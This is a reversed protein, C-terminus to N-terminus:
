NRTPAEPPARGSEALALNNRALPFDPQLRLAERHEAIAEQRRGQLYLVYGLNTHALPSRPDLRLSERFEAAAADLRGAQSYLVGRNLRAALDNPFLALARDLERAAEADRKRQMFTMGLNRHEGALVTRLRNTAPDAPDRAYARAEALLQRSEDDEPFDSVMRQLEVVAASNQGDVLLASVFRKRVELWDPQRAVAAGYLRIAERVDGQLYRIRALNNLAVDNEPERRVVESFRVGAEDYRKLLYLSHGINIIVAPDNPRLRLAEQLHPLADSPRGVTNYYNGLNNQAVDNDRTVRIAHLLLTESDKWVRVQFAATVALAGASAIAGARLLGRGWGLRGAIMAAGWAVALFL